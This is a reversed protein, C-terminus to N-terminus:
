TSPFHFRNGVHLFDEPSRSQCGFLYLYSAGYVKVTSIKQRVFSLRFYDIGVCTLSPQNPTVRPRSIDAM